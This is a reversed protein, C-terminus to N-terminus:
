RESPISILQIKKNAKEAMNQAHRAPLGLMGPTAPQLGLLGLALAPLGPNALCSALPHVQSTYAGKIETVAAEQRGENRKGDKQGSEMQSNGKSTQRAVDLPPNVRVTNLSLLHTTRKGKFPPPPLLPKKASLGGAGWNASALNIGLWRRM